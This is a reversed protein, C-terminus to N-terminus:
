RRCREVAQSSAAQDLLKAAIAVRHVLNSTVHLLLGAQSLPRTLEGSEVKAALEPAANRVHRAKKMKRESVKAAKAVKTRTRERPESLTTSPTDEVSKKNGRGGQKGAEKTQESRVLKSELEAAADAIM